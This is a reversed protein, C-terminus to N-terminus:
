ECQKWNSILNAVIKKKNPDDNLSYIEHKWRVPENIFSGDEQEVDAYEIPTSNTIKEILVAYRKNGKVYAIGFELGYNFTKTNIHESGFVDYLEDLLWKYKICNNM